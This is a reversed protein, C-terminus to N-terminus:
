MTFGLGWQIINEIINRTFLGDWYLRNAVPTAIALLDSSVKESPNGGLHLM